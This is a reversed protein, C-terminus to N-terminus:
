DKHPNYGAMIVWKSKRLNIELFICEINGSTKKSKLEKCPIDERAYILIGGGQANRDLRFPTSYGEILFQNTPYSDDIKTESIMMIDVKNHVISVLPDFKNQIHNINIHAIILREANKGKLESLIHKPDNYIGEINDNSSGPGSGTGSGFESGSKFESECSCSITSPSPSDHDRNNYSM